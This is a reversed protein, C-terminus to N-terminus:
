HIVSYVIYCVYIIEGLLIWWLSFVALLVIVILKWRGLLFLEIAQIHSELPRVTEAVGLSQVKWHGNSSLSQLSFAPPSDIHLPFSMFAFSFNWAGFTWLEQMCFDIWKSGLIYVSMIRVHRERRLVWLWRSTSRKMHWKILSRSWTATTLRTLWLWHSAPTYM